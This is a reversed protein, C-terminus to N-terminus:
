DYITFICQDRFHSHMEKLQRVLKKFNEHDRIYFGPALSTQMNTPDLTRLDYTHYTDLHQPSLHFRHSASQSSGLHKELQARPVSPQVYHPDLYFLGSNNKQVDEDGILYIAMHDKGGMIGVSQNLQFLYKLQKLYVPSINDM